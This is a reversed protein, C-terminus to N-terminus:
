LTNSSNKFRLGALVFVDIMFFQMPGLKTLTFNSAATKVALVILHEMEIERLTSTHLNKSSFIEQGLAHQWRATSFTLSCSDTRVSVATWLQWGM